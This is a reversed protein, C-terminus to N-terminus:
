VSLSSGGNLISTDSSSLSYSSPDLLSDILFVGVESLIIEVLEKISSENNLAGIM